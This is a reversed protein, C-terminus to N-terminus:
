IVEALEIAFERYEYDHDKTEELINKKSQERQWDAAMNALAVLNVAGGINKSELNM